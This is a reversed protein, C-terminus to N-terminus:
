AVQQDPDRNGPSRDSLLDSLVAEYSGFRVAADSKLDADDIRAWGDATRLYTGNSSGLDALHLVGDPAVVIVAHHRSVSRHDLVIDNEGDRGLRYVAAKPGARSGRDSGTDAGVIEPGPIAVGEPLDLAGPLEFPETKREVLMTKGCSIRGRARCRGAQLAWIRGGQVKLLVGELSLALEIRFSIRGVAKENVVIEVYPEHVSKIEHKALPVLCTEEAPHKAPDAYERLAQYKAWGGLIIDGMGIDLLTDLQSWVEKSINEKTERPLEGLNSALDVAPAVEGDDFHDLLLRSLTLGTEPPHTTTM